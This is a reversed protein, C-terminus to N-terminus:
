KNPQNKISSDAKFELYRNKMFDLTTAFFYGIMISWAIQGPFFLRSGQWRTFGITSTYYLYVTGLILATKYKRKYLLAAMGLMSLVFWTYKVSKRRWFYEFKIVKDKIEPFLSRNITNVATLNEWTLSLYAGLMERPHEKMVRRSETADVNM